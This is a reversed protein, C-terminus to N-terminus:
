TCEVVVAVGKAGVCDQVAEAIQQTLREQIQLRKSFCDTLRALKSLGVVRGSPLYGIHVRGFFPLMHHECMSYCEIDRVLVMEESACEFLADSVIDRPDQAYGATCALLAKAMRAPTKVLGERTPDEGLCQLFLPLSPPYSPRIQLPHFSLGARARSPWGARCWLGRPRGQCHIRRGGLASRACRPGEKLGARPTERRCERMHSM